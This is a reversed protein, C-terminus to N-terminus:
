SSGSSFAGVASRCADSRLSRSPPLWCRDLSSGSPPRLFRGALTATSFGAALNGECDAPDLGGRLEELAPSRGVSSGGSSDGDFPLPLGLPVLDGGCSRGCAEDELSRKCFVDQTFGCGGLKEGGTSRRGAARLITPAASADLSM